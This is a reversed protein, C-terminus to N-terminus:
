SGSRGPPVLLVVSRLPIPAGDHAAPRWMYHQVAADLVRAQKYGSCQVAVLMLQPVKEVSVPSKVLLGARGGLVQNFDRYNRWNVQVLM